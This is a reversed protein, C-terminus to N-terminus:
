IPEIGEITWYWKTKGNKQNKEIINNYKIYPNGSDQGRVDCKRCLRNIKNSYCPSSCAMKDGRQM